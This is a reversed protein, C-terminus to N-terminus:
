WINRDFVIPLNKDFNNLISAFVVIMKIKLISVDFGLLATITFSINSLFIISSSVAFLIIGYVKKGDIDYTIPVTPIPINLLLATPGAM